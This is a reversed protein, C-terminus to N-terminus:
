ISVVRGKVSITGYRLQRSGADALKADSHFTVHKGDPAVTLGGPALLGKGDGSKMLPTAAKKYDAKPINNKSQKKGNFVGNISTAYSVDYLDTNYCNSSFFLVYIYGNRGLDSPVAVMSPAEVLPGDRADRDLIQVPKSKPTVGDHVDVEQLRIPTPRPKKGNGCPGGPSGNNGDVKYLVYRKGTAPDKFGSPDIL